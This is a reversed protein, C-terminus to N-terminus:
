LGLGKKFVTLEEISYIMFNLLQILFKRIIFHNYNDMDAM